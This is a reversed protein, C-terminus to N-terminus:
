FKEPLFSYSIKPVKEDVEYERRIVLERGFTDLVVACLRRTKRVAEQLNRLSQRHYETSGYTLDVRVCTTGAELLKVLVDIERSAPGLTVLVASLACADSIM